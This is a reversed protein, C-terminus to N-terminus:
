SHIRRLNLLSPAVILDLMAKSTMYLSILFYERLKPYKMTIQPPLETRLPAWIMDEDKFDMKKFVKELPVTGIRLPMRLIMPEKTEVIDLVFQLLSNRKKGPSGQPELFSLASRRVSVDLRYDLTILKCDIM